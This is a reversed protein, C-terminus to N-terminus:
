HDWGRGLVSGTLHILLGFGWLTSMVLTTGIWQSALEGSAAADYGGSGSPSALAKIVAHANFSTTVTVFAIAHAIVWGFRVHSLARRNSVLWVAIGLAVAATLLGAVADVHSGRVAIVVQVLATSAIMGLLYPLLLSRANITSTDITKM